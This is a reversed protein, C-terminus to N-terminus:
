QDSRGGRRWWRRRGGRDSDEEPPPGAPPQSSATLVDGTETDFPTVALRRCLDLVVPVAREGGSLYFTISHVQAGKGISIEVSHDSGNVLLWTRDTADVGPVASQIAEVVSDAVGVLRPSHRDSLDELRRVHAPARIAYVDWTM